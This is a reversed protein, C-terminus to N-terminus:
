TVSPELEVEVFEVLELKSSGEFEESDDEEPLRSPAIPSTVTVSEFSGLGLLDVSLPKYIGALKRGLSYATEHGGACSLGDWGNSLSQSCQYADSTLLTELDPDPELTYFYPDILLRVAREYVGRHIFADTIEYLLVSGLADCVPVGYKPDNKWLRSPSDWLVGHDGSILLLGNTIAENLSAVIRTELDEFKM